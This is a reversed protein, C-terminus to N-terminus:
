KKEKEEKRPFVKTINGLVYLHRIDEGENNVYENVDIRGTVRVLRGKKMEEVREPSYDKWSTVKVFVSKSYDKAEWNYTNFAITFNTVPTGAKTYFMVVDKTLHGDLTVTNKYNM